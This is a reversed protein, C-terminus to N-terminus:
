AEGVLRAIDAMTQSLFEETWAPVAGDEMAFIVDFKQRLASRDPAPIDMLERRRASVDDILGEWHSQIASSFRRGEDISAVDEPLFVHDHYHREAALAYTYAAM